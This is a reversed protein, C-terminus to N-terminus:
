WFIAKRWKADVFEDVIMDYDVSNFTDKEISLIVLDTLRDQLMTSRLYTKILKLKSFSREWSVVSMFVTLMIQLAMRLNPFVDKGYEITAKLLQQPTQPKEAEMYQRNHFLMRCDIIEQMLCSGDIDGEHKQLTLATSECHSSIM